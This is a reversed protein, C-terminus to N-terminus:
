LHVLVQLGAFSNLFQPIFRSYYHFLRFDVLLLYYRVYWSVVIIDSLFWLMTRTEFLLPIDLVVIAQGSLFARLIQVGIRRFVVPHVIRNLVKRKEPNSFVIEGLKDREVRTGDENFVSPGFAKLIARQVQRDHDVVILYYRICPIGVTEQYRM